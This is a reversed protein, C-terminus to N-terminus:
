PAVPHRAHNGRRFPQRVADPRPQAPHPGVVDVQPMQPLLVLAQLLLVGPQPQLLRPQGLVRELALPQPLHQVEPGLVDVLRQRRLDDPRRAGVLRMHDVDVLSAVVSHPRLHRHDSRVADHALHLVHKRARRLHQQDGVLRAPGPHHQLRRANAPHHLAVRRAFRLDDVNRRVVPDLRALRHQGAPAVLHIRAPQRHALHLPHHGIRLGRIHIHDHLGIRVQRPQLLHHHDGLDGVLHRERHFLVHHLALDVRQRLLLARRVDQRVPQRADPVLVSRLGLQGPRVIRPRVRRLTRRRRAPAIRRPRHPRRRRKMRVPIGRSRRRRRLTQRRSRCGRPQM